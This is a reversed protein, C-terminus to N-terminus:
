FGESVLGLYYNQLYQANVVIDYGNNKIENMTNKRENKALQITKDAWESIGSNLSIFHVLDTKKSEVAVSDSVLCSLGAAQAEILVVPLGEYISPFVFVDMAQLLDAIDSRVGTFIVSDQLGLEAVKNEISSKTEGVGILILRSNYSQKIQSFVDVLFAQNKQPRFKGIHGVLVENESIGLQKRIRYYREKSFVYEKSDIANNLIEYASSGFMFDGADKGCAFLKTAYKSIQKKYFAKIPYKINIDQNSSHSHAIRFSIGCEKAVKLILSSMCDQHVHIIQYERHSEFFHALSKKYLLSFPNLRGLHYIKGGLARIEDHYDAEEPRHVLFDFQVKTRDIYRYYNMLMAELGGYGMKTVVHLIRVM